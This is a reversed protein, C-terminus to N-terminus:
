DYKSYRVADGEERRAESLYGEFKPSFLTSPRLYERMRQDSGWKRLRGDIVAKFDALVYGESARANIASATAKTSARFSSGTRANLYGIVEKALSENPTVPSTEVVTSVIEQEQEQRISLPKELNRESKTGTEKENRESKTANENDTEAKKARRNEANRRSKDLSYRIGEFAVEATESAFEPEEGTYYYEIVAAFFERRSEKSRIKAGVQYYGDFFNM